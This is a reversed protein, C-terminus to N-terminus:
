VTWSGRNSVSANPNAVIHAQPNLNPKKDHSVVPKVNLYRARDNHIRDQTRQGTPDQAEYNKLLWAIRQRSRMPLDTRAEDASNAEYEFPEGNDDLAVVPAPEPLSPVVEVPAANSLGSNEPAPAAAVNKLHGQSFTEEFQVPEPVVAVAPAPEPVASFGRSALSKLSDFLSM